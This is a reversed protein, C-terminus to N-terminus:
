KFFIGVESISDALLQGPCFSTDSLQHELAKKEIIEVSFTRRPHVNRQIQKLAIRLLEKMIQRNIFHYSVKSQNKNQSGM